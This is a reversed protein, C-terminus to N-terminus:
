NKHANGMFYFFIIVFGSFVKAGIFINMLTLYIRNEIIGLTNYNLLFLTVLVLIFVYMFKEIKEVLELKIINKSIALYNVMLIASIIAGGQFGGGPGDAGSVIVYVGFILMIPYIINLSGAIVESPGYKNPSLTNMFYKQERESLNSFQSVGIVSVFLLLAEFITDFIRFDLYVRTVINEATTKIQNALITKNYLLMENREGINFYSIFLIVGMCLTFILALKKLGNLITM